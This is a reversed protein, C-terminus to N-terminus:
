IDFDCLMHQRPTDTQRDTVADCALITDFHNCTPDPLCSQMTAGSEIKRTGVAPRFEFPTVWIPTGFAPPYTLIPSKQCIARYIEFVTCPLHITEVLTSYSTTCSRDFPPM